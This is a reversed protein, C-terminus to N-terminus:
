YPEPLVVTTDNYLSDPADVTLERMLIRHQTKSTKYKCETLLLLLMAGAAFWRYNIKM